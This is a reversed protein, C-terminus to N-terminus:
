TTRNHNVQKKPPQINDTSKRKRSKDKNLKSDAATKEKRKLNDTDKSKENAAVDSEKAAAIKNYATLECNEGTRTNYLVHTREDIVELPEEEVSDDCEPSTPRSSIGSDEHRTALYSDPGANVSNEGGSQEEAAASKKSGEPYFEVFKAADNEKKLAEKYDTEMRESVPRFIKRLVDSKGPPSIGEVKAVPFVEIKGPSTYSPLTDYCKRAGMTPMMRQLIKKPTAGGGERDKLDHLLKPDTIRIRISLLKPPLRSKEPVPPPRSRLFDDTLRSIGDFKGSVMDKQFRKARHMDSALVDKERDRLETLKRTEICATLGIHEVAEHVRGAEGASRVIVADGYSLLLVAEITEPSFQDLKIHKEKGPAFFTSVKFISIVLM